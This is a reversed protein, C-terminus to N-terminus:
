FGHWTIKFTVVRGLNFSNTTTHGYLPGVGACGASTTEVFLGVEGEEMGRVRGKSDFHMVGEKVLVL